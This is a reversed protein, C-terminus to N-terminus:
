MATHSSDNVFQVGQVDWHSRKGQRVQNNRMNSQEFRSLLHEPIHAKKVDWPQLALATFDDLVVIM